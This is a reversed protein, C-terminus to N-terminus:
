DIGNAISVALGLYNNACFNLIQKNNGEVTIQTSQASTIIRESKFTGADKIAKIENSLIERFHANASSSSYRREICKILHTEFGISIFDINIADEWKNVSVYIAIDITIYFSNSKKQNTSMYSNNKM